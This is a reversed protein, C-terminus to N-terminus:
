GKQPLLTRGERYEKRIRYVSGNYPISNYSKYGPIDFVKGEMGYLFVEIFDTSPDFTINGKEDKGEFISLLKKGVSELHGGANTKSTQDVVLIIHKRYYKSIANIEFISFIAFLFLVIIKKFNM